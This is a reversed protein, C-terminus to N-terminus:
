CAGATGLERTVEAQAASVGQESELRHRRLRVNILTQPFLTVSEVVRRDIAPASAAQLALLASLHRRRHHAQGAGAPARDEGSSGARSVLEELVYRDGVKRARNSTANAWPSRWRMNTMLTGVAGPVCGQALRDAVLLYLLEDGNYLRGDADVLQLRRRRTSHSAYDARTGQGCRDAGPRRPAM